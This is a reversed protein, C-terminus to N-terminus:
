SQPPFKVSHAERVVELCADTLNQKGFSHMLATLKTLFEPHTEDNFYLQLMRVHSVPAQEPAPGEAPAAPQNSINGHDLGLFLKLEDMEFATFDLDAGDTDSIAQLEMKLIEDDWPVQALRNDAIRAVRAQEKTLDTVIVPVEKLELKLAAAYRGHGKIITMDPDVVIPQDWGMKLIQAALKEIQEPPHIKANQEYPRIQEIPYLKVETRLNM